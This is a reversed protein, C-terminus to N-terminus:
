DKILYDIINLRQFTLNLHTTERNGSRHFQTIQLETLLEISATMQLEQGHLKLRDIGM